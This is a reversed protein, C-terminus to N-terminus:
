RPCFLVKLHKTVWLGVDTGGALFIAEPHPTRADRGARGPQAPRLFPATIGLEISM